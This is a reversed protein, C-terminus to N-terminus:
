FAPVARWSLLSCSYHWFPSHQYHNRLQYTMAHASVSRSLSNYGDIDYEAGLSICFRNKGSDIVKQFGVYLDGFATHGDYDDTTFNVHTLPISGGLYFGRGIHHYFTFSYVGSTLTEPSPFDLLPHYFDFRIFNEEQPIVRLSFGFVSTRGFVMLVIVLLCVMKVKM